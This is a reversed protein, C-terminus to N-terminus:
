RKSDNEDTVLIDLSTGFNPPTQPKPKEPEYGDAPKSYPRNETTKVPVVPAAKKPPKKKVEIEKKQSDPTKLIEIKNKETGCLKVVLVLM